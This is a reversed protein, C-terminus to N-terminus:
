IDGIRTLRRVLERRRSLTRHLVDCDVKVRKLCLMKLVQADATYM